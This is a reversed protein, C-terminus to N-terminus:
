WVSKRMGSNPKAQGIQSAKKPVVPRKKQNKQM